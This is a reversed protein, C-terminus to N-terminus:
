RPKCEAQLHVVGDEETEKVNTLQRGSCLTLRAYQKAEASTYGKPNYTGYIVGEKKEAKFINPNNKVTACASLTLAIAIVLLNAHKM